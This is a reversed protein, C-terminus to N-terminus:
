EGPLQLDAKLDPGVESVVMGPCASTRCALARRAIGQNQRVVIECNACDGNWCYRGSAVAQSNIFQICRLVTNNGPVLVRTGCIEIEILEDYRRFLGDAWQPSTMRDM